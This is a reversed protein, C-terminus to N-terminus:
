ASGAPVPIGGGQTLPDFKQDRPLPPLIQSVWAIVQPAGFSIKCGTATSHLQM